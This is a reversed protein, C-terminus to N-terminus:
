SSFAVEELEISLILSFSVNMEVDLGWEDIGVCLRRVVWDAYLIRSGSAAKASSSCFRFLVLIMLILFGDVMVVSAVVICGMSKFFIRLCEPPKLKTSIRCCFFIESSSKSLPLFFAKSARCGVVPVVFGDVVVVVNAFVGVSVVVDVVFYTFGALFIGDENRVADECCGMECNDVNDVFPFEDNGENFSVGSLGASSSM